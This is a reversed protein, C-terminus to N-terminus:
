SQRGTQRELAAVCTRALLLLRAGNEDIFKALEFLVGINEASTDGPKEDGMELLRQFDDLMVTDPLQEPTM